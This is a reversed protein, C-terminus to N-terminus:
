RKRRLNSVITQTEVRTDDQLGDTEACRCLLTSKACVDIQLVNANSVQNEGNGAKNRSVPNREEEDVGPASLWDLEHAEDHESNKENDHTRQRKVENHDYALVMFLSRM